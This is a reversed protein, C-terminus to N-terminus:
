WGGCVRTEGGKVFSGTGRIVVYLEDQDHPEQRDQSSPAYVGARLTGHQFPYFAQKGEPAAKLKGLITDASMHWDSMKTSRRRNRARAMRHPTATSPTRRREPRSSTRPLIVAASRM